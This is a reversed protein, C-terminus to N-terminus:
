ILSGGVDRKLTGGSQLSPFADLFRTNSLPVTSRAHGDRLRLAERMAAVGAEGFERVAMSSNAYDTLKTSRKPNDLTRLFMTWLEVNVGRPTEYLTVLDGSADVSMLFIEGFRYRAPEMTDPYNAGNHKRYNLISFANEVIDEFELNLLTRLEEALARPTNPIAAPPEM